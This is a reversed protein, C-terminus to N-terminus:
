RHGRKEVWKVYRDYWPGVRPLALYMLVMLVTGLSLGLVAAIM